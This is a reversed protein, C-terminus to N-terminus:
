VPSPQSLTEGGLGSPDGDPTGVGDSPVPEKIEAPVLKSLLGEYQELELESLKSLDITMVVSQIPGGDPGTVEAKIPADLGLLRARRESIKIVRDVAFLDGSKALPWVAELLEEMRQVELERLADGPERLSKELGVKVALYAAMTTFGIERGIREYTMGSRRLEIAKVQREAARMQWKSNKAASGTLKQKGKKIPM